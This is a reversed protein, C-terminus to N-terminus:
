ALSPVNYTYVCRIDVTLFTGTTREQCQQGNALVGNSMVTEGFTASGGTFSSIQKYLGLMWLINEVYCTNSTIQLHHDDETADNHSIRSM